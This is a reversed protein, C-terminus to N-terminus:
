DEKKKEAAELATRAARVEGATLSYEATLQVDAGWKEIEENWLGALPELVALLADHANVARVILAAQYEAVLKAGYVRIGSVHEPTSIPVFGLIGPTTPEQWDHAKWPTPTHTM